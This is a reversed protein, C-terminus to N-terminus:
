SHFRSLLGLFSFCLFECMTGEFGLNERIQTRGYRSTEQILMASPPPSMTNYEWFLYEFKLLCVINKKVNVKVEYGHSFLSLDSLEKSFIRYYSLENTM